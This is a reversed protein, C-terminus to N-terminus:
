VKARDQGRRSSRFVVYFLNFVHVSKSAASSACNQDNQGGIQLWLNLVYSVIESQSVGIVAVANQLWNQTEFDHCKPAEPLSRCGNKAM